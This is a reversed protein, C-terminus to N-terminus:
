GSCNRVDKLQRLRIRDVKRRGDKPQIKSYLDTEVNKMINALAMTNNM